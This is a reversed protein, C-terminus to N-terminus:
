LKELTISQVTVKGQCNPSIHSVASDKDIKLYDKVVLDEWGLPLNSMDILFIVTAKIPIGM